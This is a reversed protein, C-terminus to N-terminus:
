KAKNKVLRKIKNVARLCFHRIRRSKCWLCCYVKYSLDTIKYLKEGRYFATVVGILQDHTVGKEEVFQNDGIMTCTEGVEVIRHLVYSGDARQYLPIDYKKLQQPLPSLVISDKGQRLMPLMSIGRPSFKVSEGAALQERIIPMIADLSVSTTKETM